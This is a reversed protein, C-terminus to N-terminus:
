PEPVYKREESTCNLYWSPDFDWKAARSWMRLTLPRPMITKRPANYFYGTTRDEEAGTVTIRFGSAAPAPSSL